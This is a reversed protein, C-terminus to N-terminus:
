ATHGDAARLDPSGERRVDPPQAGAVPPLAPRMRGDRAKAAISAKAAALYMTAMNQWHDVQERLDACTPCETEAM